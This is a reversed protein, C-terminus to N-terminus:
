VTRVAYKVRIFKIRTRVLPFYTKIRRHGYNGVADNSVRINRRFRYDSQTRTTYRAFLRRDDSTILPYQIENRAYRTRPTRRGIYHNHIPGQVLVALPPTEYVIRARVLNEDSRGSFVRRSWKPTRYKRRPLLRRVPSGIIQVPNVRDRARAPQNRFPVSSESV